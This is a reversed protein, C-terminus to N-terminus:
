DTKDSKRTGAYLVTIGAVEGQRYRVIIDDDRLVANDVLESDLLDVYLIDAEQDYKVWMNDSKVFWPIMKLIQNVYREDM